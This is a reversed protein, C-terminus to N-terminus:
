EDEERKFFRRPIGGEGQGRRSKGKRGKGGAAEAEKSLHRSSQLLPVVTRESEGEGAERESV